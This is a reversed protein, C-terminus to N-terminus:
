KKTQEVGHERGGRAGVLCGHCVSAGTRRKEEKERTTGYEKSRRERKTCLGVLLTPLALVTEVGGGGAQKVGREGAATWWM